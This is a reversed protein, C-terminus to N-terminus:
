PEMASLDYRFFPYLQIIGLKALLLLIDSSITNDGNALTIGAVTVEDGDNTLTVEATV